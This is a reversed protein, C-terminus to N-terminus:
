TCTSPLRARPLGGCVALVQTRDRGNARARMMALIPRLSTSQIYTEFPANAARGLRREIFPSTQCTRTPTAQIMACEKARKGSNVAPPGHTKCQNRRQRYRILPPGACFPMCLPRFLGSGDPQLQSALRSKVSRLAPYIRVFHCFLFFFFPFQVMPFDMSKRAHFPEGDPTDNSLRLIHGNQRSLRDSDPARRTLNTPL